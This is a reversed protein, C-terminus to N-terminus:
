RKVEKNITESGSRGSGRDPEVGNAANAAAREAEAMLANAGEATPEPLPPIENREEQSCATTLLAGGLLLAFRRM